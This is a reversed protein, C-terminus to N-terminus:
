QPAAFGCHLEPESYIKFSVKVIVKKSKVLVQKLHISAHKYGFLNLIKIIQLFLKPLCSNKKDKIYLFFGSSCNTFIPEARLCLM